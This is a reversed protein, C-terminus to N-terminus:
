RSTWPNRAATQDFGRERAAVRDCGGCAVYARELIEGAFVAVGDGGDPEVDVVLAGDIRRDGLRVSAEAPEVDDDVIGAVALEARDLLDALLFGARLDLGVHEARQPHRLRRQRDHARLAGAVDDLDRRDAADVGEGVEAEIVGRFPREFTEALRQGRLHGLEADMNIRRPLPPTM